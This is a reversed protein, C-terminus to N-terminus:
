ILGMGKAKYVAAAQTAAGLKELADKKKREVVRLSLDMAVSIQKMAMGDALYGLISIEDEVLYKHQSLVFKDDVYDYREGTKICDICAKTTKHTLLSTSVTCLALWMYGNEDLQYPVVRHRLTIQRGSPTVSVLDYSFVLEMRTEYDDYLDFVKQAQAYVQHAWKMEDKSLINDYIKIGRKNFMEVPLGAIVHGPLNGIILKKERYDIMYLGFNIARNVFGLMCKTSDLCHTKRLNNCIKTHRKPNFQIDM